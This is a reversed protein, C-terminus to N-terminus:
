RAQPRDQSRYPTEPPQRRKAIRAVLGAALLGGILVLIDEIGRLSLFLGGLLSVLLLLAAVRIVAQRLTWGSGAAPWEGDSGPEDLEWDRNAETM